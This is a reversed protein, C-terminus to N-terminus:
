TLKTVKPFQQNFKDIDSLEIRKTVKKYQKMIQEVSLPEPIEDPSIQM